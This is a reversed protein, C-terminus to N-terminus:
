GAALMGSLLTAIGPFSMFGDIDSVAAIMMSTFMALAGIIQPVHDVLQLYFDYFTKENASQWNFATPKSDNM